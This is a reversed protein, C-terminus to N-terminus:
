SATSTSNTAACSSEPPPHTTRMMMSPASWPVIKEPNGGVRNYTEASMAATSCQHSPVRRLYTATPSCLLASRTVSCSPMGCVRSNVRGGNSRPKSLSGGGDAPEAEAESTFFPSYPLQVTIKLSDELGLNSRLSSKLVAALGNRDGQRQTGSQQIVSLVRQPQHAECSM